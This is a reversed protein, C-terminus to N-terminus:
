TCQYIDYLYNCGCQDLGWFYQGEHDFADLMVTM